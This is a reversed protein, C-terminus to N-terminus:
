IANEKYSVNNISCTATATPLWAIEIYNYSRFAAEDSLIFTTVSQKRMNLKYQYDGRVSSNIIDM